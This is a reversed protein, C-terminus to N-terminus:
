HLFNGGNVCLVQGTIFSAEPSCLFTVADAVEKPHGMRGLLPGQVERPPLGSELASNDIPGPAVCNVRIGFRAVNKALAFTLGVEAAKSAAYCPSPFEGTGGHLGAGSSITVITGSRREIMAPIVARSCLFVGRVNVAMVRDWEEVTIDFFSPSEPVAANNVLIDVHGLASTAERYLRDVESPEAVDAQCIVARQGLAAIERAVREAADPTARHNVVIDAGAHALRVAIARGIGRSAGTVLAVRGKLATPFVTPGAPPEDRWWRPRHGAASTSM